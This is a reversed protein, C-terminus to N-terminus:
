HTLITYNWIKEKFFISYISDKLKIPDKIENTYVVDEKSLIGSSIMKRLEIDTYSDKHGVVKWVSNKKM